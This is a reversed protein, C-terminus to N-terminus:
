SSGRRQGRRHHRCSLLRPGRLIKRARRNSQFVWLDLRHPYCRKAIHVLHSGIGLGTWGPELYLQDLWGDNLVLLGVIAGGSIEAIWTDFNPVVVEGFWSRVEEVDHVPPPIGPIAAIRSRLWLDAIM